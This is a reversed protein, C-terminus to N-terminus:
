SASGGTPAGLDVQSTFLKGNLRIVRVICKSNNENPVAIRKTAGSVSDLLEIETGPPVSVRSIQANQPLSRWSRTDAKETLKNLIGVAAGAAGGGYKSAASSAAGKIITRVVQRAIISPAKEEFAKVALADIACIAETRALEKGGSKVILPQPPTPSVKFTPIAIASLGPASPIPIPITYAMPSKAPVLGDEFLVVVDVGSRASSSRLRASIGLKKSFETLDDLMRLESALRAVDQQAFTNTPYIELAKKYDIYADNPENLLEHVVASLYFTYANQFSNKIQGAVSQSEGLIGSVSSAFDSPNFGKEKAEAEAKSLEAEHAKLAIEQEANARRVEVGAGELDKNMLHNLAQFHFTLVREFGDPEYPIMNDNVVLAAAHAGVDSASVTARQDLEEIKAIAASFEPASEQPSSLIQEIRGRELRALTGDAGEIEDPLIDTVSLTAGPELGQLVEPVTSESGEVDFTPAPESAQSPKPAESATQPGTAQPSEVLSKAGYFGVGGAAGMGAGYIIAPIVAICGTLHVTIMLGLFRISRIM